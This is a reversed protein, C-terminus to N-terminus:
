EPHAVGGVSPAPGHDLRVERALHRLKWTAYLAFPTNAIFWALAVGEIGLKAALPPALVALALIMALPFVLLATAKEQARLYALYYYAPAVVIISAALITLTGAGHNAYDTGFVRLILPSLLACAVAGPV